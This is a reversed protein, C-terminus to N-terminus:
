TKDGDDDLGMMAVEAEDAGATLEGEIPYGLDDWLKLGGIVSVVKEFGHENRLADATRASRNGEGCFLIIEKDRGGAAEEAAKAYDEGHADTGSEGSPLSISGEIHGKDFRDANRTDIVVAEGDDIRQKADPPLIEEIRGKILELPPPVEKHPMDVMQSM